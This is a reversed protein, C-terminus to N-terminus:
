RHQLHLPRHCTTGLETELGPCSTSADSGCRLGHSWAKRTTLYKWQGNLYGAIYPTWFKAISQGGNREAAAVQFLRNRMPWDDGHASFILKHSRNKKKTVTIIFSTWEHSSTRWVSELIRITDHQVRFAGVMCSQLNGPIKRRSVQRVCIDTLERITLLQM